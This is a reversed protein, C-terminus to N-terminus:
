EDSPEKTPTTPDKTRRVDGALQADALKGLVSTLEENSLGSIKATSAVLKIAEALMEASGCHVVAERTEALPKDLKAILADAASTSMGAYVEANHLSQDSIEVKVDGSALLGNLAIAAIVDRRVAKWVVPGAQEATYMSWELIRQREETDV